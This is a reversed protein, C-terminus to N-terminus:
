TVDSVSGWKAAENTTTNNYILSLHYLLFGGVACFMVVALVLVGILPYEKGLIYKFVISYTAPVKKRLGYHYFQANLLDEEM